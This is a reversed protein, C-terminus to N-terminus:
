RRPGSTRPAWWWGTPASSTRSRRARACSSPIPSWPSSPTPGRGQPHDGRGRRRHGGARDVQHGGRHLGRDPRRDGRRRRLRLVPRRPRRRAAVPHGRRHVGRRGRKIAQAGDLHRLVAPGDRVNRAVLLDELGPEFIPISAGSAAARDQQRGQRHLDGDHGFDAFCARQCWAWM